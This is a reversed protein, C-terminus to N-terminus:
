QGIINYSFFFNTNCYNFNYQLCYSLLSYSQIAVCYKTNYSLSPYALNCYPQKYQLVYPNHQPQFPQLLCFQIAICFQIAVSLSPLQAARLARAPRTPPRQAPSQAPRPAPRAPLLRASPPSPAPRQACARAAAPASARRVTRAAAPAALTRPARCCASCPRVLRAALASPSAAQVCKPTGAPGAPHEHLRSPKEVQNEVRHHKQTVTQVRNM